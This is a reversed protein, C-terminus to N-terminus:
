LSFREVFDIIKKLQEMNEARLAPYLEFESKKKEKSNIFKKYQYPHSVEINPYKQKVINEVYTGCYDGGTGLSVIVEYTKITDVLAKIKGQTTILDDDKIMFRVDNKKNHM